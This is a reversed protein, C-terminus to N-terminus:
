VNTQRFESPTSDFWRRFVRSFNSTDVYGLREAIVEISLSRDSLYWVALEKRVKDLLEQYSTRDAKLRRILTRVSVNFKEATTEQTPFAPANSFLYAQVQRSINGTENTDLMLQKCERIANRYAFEDATLCPLNLVESPFTVEFCPTDFSFGVGPFRERYLEGQGDRSFPFAVKLAHGKQGTTKELLDVFSGLLMVDVFRRLDGLDILSIIQFTAYETEENFELQLIRLRTGLMQQVLRFTDRVSPAALAGYGLPGHSSAQIMSSIELELNRGQALNRANNTLRRFQAFSIFDPNEILTDWSLSNGAFLDKLEVGTSRMHACLLRAYAPHISPLLYGVNQEPSLPTANM